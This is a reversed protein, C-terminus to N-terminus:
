FMDFSCLSVYIHSYYLNIIAKLGNGYRFSILKIISIVISFNISSEKDM